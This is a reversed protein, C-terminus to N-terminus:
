QNSRIATIVVLVNGEDDQDFTFIVRIGQRTACYRWSGRELSETNLRGKLLTQRIQEATIFREDMRQEAHSRPDGSGRPAVGLSIRGQELLAEILERLPKPALEQSPDIVEVRDLNLM